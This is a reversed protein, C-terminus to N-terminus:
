PSRVEERVRIGCGAMIGALLFYHRWHLSDIVLSIISTAMFVAFCIRLIEVLQPDRAYRLARLGGFLCRGLFLLYVALGLAGNVLFVMVYTNHTAYNFYDFTEGPGIGWPNEVAALIANKQVGFRSQDYEQAQLRDRLFEATKTESLSLYGGFFILSGLMGLVLYSMMKNTVARRRVVQTLMYFFGALATCLMAGRSFSYVIGLILLGMLGLVILSKVSLFGVTRLRTWLFLVPLSLYPGFVNPDKFLAKGRGYLTFTDSFPLIGYYGGIALVASICAGATWLWFFIRALGVGRFGILIMASFTICFIYGTIALYLGSALHDRAFYLSFINLILFAIGLLVLIRDARPHWFWGSAVLGAFVGIFLVDPPAPEVFVV